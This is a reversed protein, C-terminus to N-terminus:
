KPPLIATNANFIRSPATIPPIMRIHRNATATQYTGSVAYLNILPYINNRWDQNNVISRNFHLRM